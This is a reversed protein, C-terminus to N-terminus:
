AKEFCLCVSSYMCACLARHIKAECNLCCVCMTVCVCVCVCSDPCMSICICSDPYTCTQSVHKDILMHSVHMIEEVYTVHVCREVYTVCVCTVWCIYSAWIEWCIHCMCSDPYTCIQSCVYERLMDSAYVLRSVYVHPMHKLWCIQRMCLGWCIHCMCVYAHSMYMVCRRHTQPLLAPPARHWPSRSSLSAGTCTVPEWSQTKDLTTAHRRCPAKRHSCTYSSNVYPDILAQAHIHLKGAIQYIRQTLKHARSDMCHSDLECAAQTCFVMCVQMCVYM